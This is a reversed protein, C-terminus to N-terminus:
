SLSEQTKYQQQRTRREGKGGFILTLVNISLDIVRRHEGAGGSPVVVHGDLEVSIFSNNKGM